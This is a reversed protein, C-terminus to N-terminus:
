RAVKGAVARTHCLGPAEATGTATEYGARCEPAQATQRRRRYQLAPTHCGGLEIRGTDHRPGSGSAVWVLSM